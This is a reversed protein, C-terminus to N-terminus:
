VFGNGNPEGFCGTVQFGLMVLGSHFILSVEEVVKRSWRTPMEKKGVERGIQNGM